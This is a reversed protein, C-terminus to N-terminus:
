NLQLGDRKRSLQLLLPIRLSLGEGLIIFFAAAVLWCFSFAATHPIFHIAPRFFFCKEIKVVM